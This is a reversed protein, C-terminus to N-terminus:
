KLTIHKTFGGDIIINQGTIYTNLDSCLFIVLNAIENTEAFRNLPIQKSIENSEEKTLSEKTLETNTFGPSVSNVLINPAMEISTSKTMGIIGTKVTSYLSRYKKSKVGWISSINVIKGSSMNVGKTLM